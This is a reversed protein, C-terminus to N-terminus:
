KRLSDGPLRRLLESSERGRLEGLLKSLEEGSFEGLLRGFLLGPPEGSEDGSQGRLLRGFQGAPLKSFL